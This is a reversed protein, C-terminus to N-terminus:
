RRLPARSFERKLEQGDTECKKLYKMKRNGKSIEEQCGGVAKPNMLMEWSVKLRAVVVTLMELSKLRKLM